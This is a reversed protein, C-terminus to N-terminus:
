LALTVKSLGRPQDPDQGKARRSRRHSSSVPCSPSCPSLLPPEAAPVRPSYAAGALQDVATGSAVLTAGMARVRDAAEQLAPLTEDASPDGLRSRAARPCGGARSRPRDRGISPRELYELVDPTRGSRSLAIATEGSMDLPTRYHVTLSIPNRM